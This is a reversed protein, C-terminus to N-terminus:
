QTVMLTDTNIVGRFRMSKHHIKSKAEYQDGSFARSFGISAMKTDVAEALTSAEGSTKAWVDVQVAIEALKERNDTRVKTSNSAEYYSIAPLTTFSEPHFYSVKAGDVESLLTYIQPKVNIM